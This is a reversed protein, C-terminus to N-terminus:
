PTVGGGLFGPFRPFQQLQLKLEGLEEAWLSYSSNKLLVDISVEKMEVMRRAYEEFTGINEWLLSRKIPDSERRVSELWERAEEVHAWFCTDQTLSAFKSRKKNHEEGTVRRDRWWRDFIEYRRERGHTIYHGKKRHVGSRYYEAIDLPEVLLKYFQSANIWKARYHFDHPLQNTELMHILEDWFVALKIRNMNVKSGKRSAGRQKFSDYYGMQDESEECSAKYWEIQARLPNIKSLGIALNASNLNPARGMRKAMKLCDKALESVREQSSIGSSQLALTIGAEYSSQPLEGEGFGSRKLFQMSVKGVYEGYKIHDEVSSSPCGVTLMLYLLKVIAVGNDVCVAGDDSCFLFNGFPWFGSGRRAAGGGERANEGVHDLVFHFLESKLQEPPPVRLDRLNPSTMSLHWYQLLSHLHPALPALPAFLIRPVIDLKTVVHCFNGVWRHRLISTSLPENGLLPSGFTICLISLSTSLSQLSSLLWLASLSAITGGISHGTFVVPKNKNMIELIQNQFNTSRYVALFLNLFGAHVMAPEEEGADQRRSQLGSFLGGAVELPVLNKMGPDMGAVARVGTFAMYTVDGVEEVVFSEAAVDTSASASAHSCLNWSDSLLSTSALITALMESSEFSSPEPEM